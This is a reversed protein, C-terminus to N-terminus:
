LVLEYMELNTDGLDEYHVMHHFVLDFGCATYIRAAALNGPVVDLHIARKGWGRATEICWTVVERGLGRGRMSPHIALLHIVSVEDGVAGSPWPAGVYEPDEEHTLVVAAAPTDRDFGLYMERAEIRGRLDDNTPYIGPTWGPSYADQAQHAMVEDFLTCTRDLDDPTALRMDLM